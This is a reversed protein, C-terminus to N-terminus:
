ESFGRWYPTGWGGREEERVKVDVLRRRSQLLLTQQKFMDVQFLKSASTLMHREYLTIDLMSAFVSRFEGFKSPAHDSVVKQMMSNLAVYGMM